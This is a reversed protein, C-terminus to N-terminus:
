SQRLWRRKKDTSMLAFFINKVFRDPSCNKHDLMGTLKRLTSYNNNTIKKRTVSALQMVGENIEEKKNAKRKETIRKSFKQKTTLRRQPRIITIETM